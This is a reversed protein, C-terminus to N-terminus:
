GVRRVRDPAVSVREQRAAVLDLDEQGLFPLALLPVTQALLQERERVVADGHLEPVLPMVGIALPPPSVSKLVPRKSIVPEHTLPHHASVVYAKITTLPPKHIPNINISHIDRLLM